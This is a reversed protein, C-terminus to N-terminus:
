DSTVERIDGLLEDFYPNWTLRAHYKEADRQGWASFWLAGPDDPPTLDEQGNELM